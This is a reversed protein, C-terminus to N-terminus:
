QERPPRARRLRSSENGGREVRGNTRRVDDAQHLVERERWSVVEDNGRTNINISIQLALSTRSSAQVLANESRSQGLATSMNDSHRSVVCHRVSSSVIRTSVHNRRGSKGKEKREKGGDGIRELKM